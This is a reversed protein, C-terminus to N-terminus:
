GEDDEDDNAVVPLASGSVQQLLAHVPNDPQGGHDLAVRDGYVKPKLKGAEWKLTDIKLRQLQVWGTDIKGSVPDLRPEEDIIDQIRTAYTEALDEKARAYDKAFSDNERLWKYITVISPMEPEACIRYLAEGSAVRLCIREAVDPKFLM